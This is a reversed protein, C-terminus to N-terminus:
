SPAAFVADIANCLASVFQKSQNISIAICSPPQAYSYVLMAFCIGM